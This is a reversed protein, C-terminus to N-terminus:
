YEYDRAAHHLVSVFPEDHQITYGSRYDLLLPPHVSGMHEAVSATRHLAHEVAPPEPRAAFHSQRLYAHMIQLVREPASQPGRAYTKLISLIQETM